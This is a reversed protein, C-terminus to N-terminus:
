NCVDFIAAKLKRVSSEDTVILFSNENSGMSINDFRPLEIIKKCSSHVIKCGINIFINANEYTVGAGPMIDIRHKSNKILEKILNIAEDHIASPRQGSTLLRNFGLDIITELSKTPDKCLDFARHFTVPIPKAKEIIIKCSDQDIVQDKQMAGFVFRDVNYSKFIELDTVMTDMEFTNYCFDSGTRCRLM